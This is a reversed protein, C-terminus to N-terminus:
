IFTYTSTIIKKKLNKCYAKHLSLLLDFNTKNSNEYFKNFKKIFNKKNVTYFSNKNFGLQDHREIKNLRSDFFHKNIKIFYKSIEDSSKFKFIKIFEEDFKLIGPFQLVQPHNDLLSQLLDSGSRGGTLILAVEM